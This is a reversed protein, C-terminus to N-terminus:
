RSLFRMEFASRVRELESEVEKLIVEDRSSPQPGHEAGFTSCLRSLETAGLNASSGCLSHASRIVADSDADDLGQRLEAIHCEADALFQAALRGILDEGASEGLRELQDLVNLDLAPGVSGDPEAAGKVDEPDSAIASASRRRPWHTLTEAITELKFPIAIGDDMGAKACRQRDAATLSETIAIIPTRRSAGKLRRIENTAQYGDLTPLNCDIFIARYPRLIAAAVAAEGDSVADVEHGLKEFMARAIRQSIPNDQAMLICNNAQQGM